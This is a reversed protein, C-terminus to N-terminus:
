CWDASSRTSRGTPSQSSFTAPSSVCTPLSECDQGSIRGRLLMRPDTSGVVEGAPGVLEAAVFAADGAGSGLDLIRMGASVGAAKLIVRTAPALLRGQHDLRALETADSGLQYTTDSPEM